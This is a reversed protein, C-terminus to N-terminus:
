AIQVRYKIMEQDIDALEECNKFLNIECITKDLIASAPKLLLKELAINCGVIKNNNSWYIPFPITNVLDTRFLIADDLRGFLNTKETIDRVVLILTSQDCETISSVSIHLVCDTGDPRVGAVYQNHKTLLESCKKIRRSSKNFVAYTENEDVTVSDFKMIDNINLGIPTKSSDFKFIKQAATNCTLITCNKDISMIGESMNSSIIDIQRRTFALDDSLKGIISNTIMKTESVSKHLKDSLENIKILAESTVLPQGLIAQLENVQETLDKRKLLKGLRKFCNM